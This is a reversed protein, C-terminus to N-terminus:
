GMDLLQEIANVRKGVLSRLQRVRGAAQARGIADGSWAIYRVHALAIQETFSYHSQNSREPRNLGRRLLGAAEAPQACHLHVKAM